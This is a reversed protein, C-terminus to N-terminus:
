STFPVHRGGHAPAGPPTSVPVGGGLSSSLPLNGRPALGPWGGGGLGTSGGALAPVKGLPPELPVWGGHFVLRLLGGGDVRLVDVGDLAAPCLVDPVSNIGGGLGDPGGGLEEGGAVAPDRRAM